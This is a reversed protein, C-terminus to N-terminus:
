NQKQEHEQKYLFSTHKNSKEHRKFLFQMVHAGCKCVINTRDQHRKVTEIMTNKHKHYYRKMRANFLQRKHEEREKKQEETLQLRPRGM